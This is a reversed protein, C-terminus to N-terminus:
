GGEGVVGGGCGGEYVVCLVETKELFSSATRFSRLFVLLGGM